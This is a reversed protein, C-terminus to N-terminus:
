DILGVRQLDTKMEQKEQFTIQLLPPRVKGGGPIGLLACWQKLYAIPLTGSRWPDMIWKEFLVRLENLTYSLEKAEDIKGEDILKTYDRIILKGPKQYLYPEPSSMFVQQGLYAHNILWNKESPETCVIRDGALRLTEIHHEMSQANKICCINEIEALEAIMRPSLTVGSITSNFLSVGLNVKGCLHTFYAKVQKDSKAAFYPNMLIAYDAGVEEAHRTLVVAEGVSQHATHAIVQTKGYCEEVVIKQLHKREEITLAWFESILGGCFFGDIELEGIYYRMSKRLADEDLEDDETFPCPTAAWIGKMHERTYEKAEDKKYEM